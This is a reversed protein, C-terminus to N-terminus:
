TGIEVESCFGFTCELDDGCTKEGDEECCPQNIGGCQLCLDNSFLHDPNCFPENICANKANNGCYQCIGGFCDQRLNDFITEGVCKKDGGCCPAGNDGCSVCDGGYCLLESGCQDEECCIQGKKGCEICNGDFCALGDGCKPGDACCFKGAEGCVCEDACYTRTDDFPDVCCEQGFLCAPEQEICCALGDMGCEEMQLVESKWSDDNQPVNSKGCASLLFLLCFIILFRRKMYFYAGLFTGKPYM